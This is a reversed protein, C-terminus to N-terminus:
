LYLLRALKNTKPNEYLKIFSCIKSSRKNISGWTRLDSALKQYNFHDDLISQLESDIFTTINGNLEVVHFKGNKQNRTLYTKM